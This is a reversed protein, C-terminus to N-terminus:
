NNPIHFKLRNMLLAITARSLHIHYNNLQNQIIGAQVCKEIILEVEKPVKKLRGITGPKPIQGSSIYASITKRIRKRTIHM